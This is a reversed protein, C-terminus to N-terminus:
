AESKKAVKEKLAGQWYMGSRLKREKMKPKVDKSQSRV